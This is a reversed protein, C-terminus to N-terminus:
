HVEVMKRTSLERRVTGISLSWAASVDLAMTKLMRTGCGDNGSFPRQHTYGSRIKPSVASFQNFPSCTSLNDNQLSRLEIIRGWCRWVGSMCAIDPTHM